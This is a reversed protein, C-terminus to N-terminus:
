YLEFLREIFLPNLLYAESVYKKISSYNSLTWLTLGLLELNECTCVIRLMFNIANLSEIQKLIPALKDDDIVISGLVVLALKVDSIGANKDAIVSFLEKYLFGNSFCPM